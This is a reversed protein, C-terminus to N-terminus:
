DVDKLAVMLAVMKYESLVAKTAVLCVDRLVVSELAKTVVM